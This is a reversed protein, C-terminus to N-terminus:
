PQRSARISHFVELKIEDTQTNWFGAIEDEFDTHWGDGVLEITDSGKEFYGIPKAKGNDFIYPIVLLSDYESTVSPKVWFGYCYCRYELPALAKYNEFITTLM